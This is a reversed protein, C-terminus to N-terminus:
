SKNIRAAVGVVRISGHRSLAHALGERYIRMPSVVVIRPVTRSDTLGHEKLARKGSV